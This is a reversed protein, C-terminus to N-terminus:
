ADKELAVAYVTPMLTFYGGNPMTAVKHYVRVVECTSGDQLNLRDGMRPLFSLMVAFSVGTQDGHKAGPPDCIINVPRLGERLGAELAGLPLDPTKSPDYSIM